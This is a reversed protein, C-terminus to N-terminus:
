NWCKGGYPLKEWLAPAAYYQGTQRLVVNIERIMIEGRDSQRRANAFNARCQNSCFKKDLRGVM